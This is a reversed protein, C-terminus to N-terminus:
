DATWAEGHPLLAPTGRSSLAVILDTGWFALMTGLADSIGALLVNETLLQRIIRSGSAGLALGPEFFQLPEHRHLSRL